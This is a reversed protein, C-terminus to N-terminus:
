SQHDKETRELRVAHAAEPLRNIKWLSEIRMDAGARLASLSVRGSDDDGRSSVLFAPREGEDLLVHRSGQSATTSWTKGLQPLDACCWAADQRSWRVSPTGGKVSILEITGCSHVVVGNTSAVFFEAAGDNDVDVTGQVFRRPLDCVQEGTAANVVVVHWHDDGTGNFLNLVIEPRRDGTVDALPRPGVQPWKKRRDIDREIDRRWKVGLREGEPRAPDFELVDIHSQFDGITVLEMQGDMDVDGLGFGRRAVIMHHKEDYYAVYQQREHSLLCFGVPFWSPVADIELTEVVRYTAAPLRGADCFLSSWFVAVLICTRLLYKM